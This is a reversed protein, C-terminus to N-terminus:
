HPALCTSRRYAAVVCFGKLVNAMTPKTKDIRIGNTPRITEITATSDTRRLPWGPRLKAIAPITMPATSVTKVM